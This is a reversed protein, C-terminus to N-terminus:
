VVSLAAELLESGSSMNLKQNIRSQYTEIIKTSLCLQEAIQRPVKEEGILRFAELEYDTL